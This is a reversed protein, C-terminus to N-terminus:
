PAAPLPHFTESAPDLSVGGIQLWAHAEVAGQETRRVGIVLEPSLRRLRQGAILSHRLCTGDVPWRRMVTSVTRLRTFAWPPLQLDAARDPEPLPSAASYGVKLLRSLQRLPLVRLGVEAFGALAVVATYDLKAALPLRVFTRAAAGFSRLLPLVM